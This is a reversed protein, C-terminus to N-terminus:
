RASPKEDAQQETDGVCRFEIAGSMVTAARADLRNTLLHMELLKHFEKRSYYHGIEEGLGWDLLMSVPKAIPYLLLIFIKLVPIFFSGIRLAHRACLAQPVIEGLLVITLTSVIFGVLGSSIEAMLISMLSNVAVNGLLLTCLLQNGARRIPLVAMAAAKEKPTGTSAVIELQNTDLGM